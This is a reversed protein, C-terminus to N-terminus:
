QAELRALELIEGTIKPDEIGQEVDVLVFSSNGHFGM